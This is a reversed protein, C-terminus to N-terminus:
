GWMEPSQCDKKVAKRHHNFGYHEKHAHFLVVGGVKKEVAGAMTKRHGGGRHTPRKEGFVRGLTFDNAPRESGGETHRERLKEKKTVSKTLGEDPSKGMHTNEGVIKKSRGREGPLPNFRREGKGSVLDV